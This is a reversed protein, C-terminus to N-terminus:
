FLSLRRAYGSWLINFMEKLALFLVTIEKTPVFKFKAVTCASRPVPSHGVFALKVFYSEMFCVSRQLLLGEDATEHKNNSSSPKDGCREKHKM